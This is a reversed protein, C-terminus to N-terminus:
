KRYSITLLCLMDDFICNPDKLIDTYSMPKLKPADHKQVSKPTVKQSACSDLQFGRLVKNDFM